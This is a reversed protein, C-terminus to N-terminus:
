VRSEPQPSLYLPKLDENLPLTHIATLKRGGNNFNGLKTFDLSQKILANRSLQEINKRHQQKRRLQASLSQYKKDHLKGPSNELQLTQNQVLKRPSIEVKYHLRQNNLEMSKVKMLSPQTHNTGIFMKYNSRNSEPKRISNRSKQKVIQTQRVQQLYANSSHQVSGNSRTMYQMNM